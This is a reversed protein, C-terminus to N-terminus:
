ESSALMKLVSSQNFVKPRGRSPGIMQLNRSACIRSILCPLGPTRDSYRVSILSNIIIGCFDVQCEGAILYIFETLDRTWKNRDCTSPMMNAVFFKAAVKLHMSAGKSYVKGDERILNRNFLISSLVELSLREDEPPPFRVGDIPIQLLESIIFRDVSFINGGVMTKFSFEDLNEDHINAYFQAVTEVHVTGLPKFLLGWHHHSLFDELHRVDIESLALYRECIPEKEIFKLYLERAKQSVFSIRLSPDLFPEYRSARSSSAKKSRKYSM